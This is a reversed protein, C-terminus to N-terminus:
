QKIPSSANGASQKLLSTAQDACDHAADALGAAMGSVIATSTSTGEVLYNQGDFPVVNDGPAVIQVFSGRNAYSAIGGSSDSATVAVVGPYAAPYTPTTVPDNGAAAYMAIGQQSAQSIVNQLVSSNGTSGLSMNLITAGGNIAQVIGNAVDFTTTTESNGYVDVPLVTVSTTGNQSKAQLSDMITELMATGHTLTKPSRSNPGAVSIPPKLFPAYNAPLSQTQVPTDILGIVLQCPGSNTVPNLKLSPSTSDTADLPPPADMPYNYDVSAVDPNDTLSTRAADESAADPFQLLYTNQADMRGIIKAGLARALDEIKTKSGPKLTVVLENPVPVAIKKAPAIRRTAQGRTTRFVFLQAPGNTQPLILFNLDGLLAHLADTSPLDKFKASVPRIAGPDLYIQWGTTAAVHELLERVDWSNVDASVLDQKQRWVLTDARASSPFLLPCLACLLAFAIVIRRIHAGPTNVSPYDDLLPHSDIPSPAVNRIASQPNRIPPALLRLPPRQL